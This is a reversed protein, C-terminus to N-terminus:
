ILSWSENVDIPTRHRDIKPREEGVFRLRERVTVGSDTMCIELVGRSHGLRGVRYNLEFRMKLSTLHRQTIPSSRAWGLECLRLFPFALEPM